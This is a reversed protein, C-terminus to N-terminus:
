RVAKLWGTLLALEKATPTKSQVPMHLMVVHGPRKVIGTLVPRSEVIMLCTYADPDVSPAPKADSCVLLMGAIVAHADGDDPLSTTAIQQDEDNVYTCM